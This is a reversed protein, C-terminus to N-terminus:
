LDAIEVKRRKAEPEKAKIKADEIADAIRQREAARSAASTM